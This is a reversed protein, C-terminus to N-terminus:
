RMLFHQPRNLKEPRADGRHDPFLERGHSRMSPPIIGVTNLNLLCPPLENEREVPQEFVLSPNPKQAALRARLRHTLELPAQQRFCKRQLLWSKTSGSPGRVHARAKRRPSSIQNAPRMAPSGYIPETRTYTELKRFGDVTRIRDSRALIRSPM